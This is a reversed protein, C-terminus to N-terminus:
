QGWAALESFTWVSHTIVHRARFVIKVYRATIGLDDFDLPPVDKGRGDLLTVTTLPYYGEGDVSTLIEISGDVVSPYNALIHAAVLRIRDLRCRQSLDVVVSVAEGAVAHWAVTGIPDEEAGDFLKRRHPDEYFLVDPEPDYNVRLPRDAKSGLYHRNGTLLTAGPTVYRKDPM